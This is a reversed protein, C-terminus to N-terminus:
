PQVAGPPERAPLALERVFPFCVFVEEGGGGGNIENAKSSLLCPVSM